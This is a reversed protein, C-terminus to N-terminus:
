AEQATELDSCGRMAMIDDANIYLGIIEWAQTVTSKGSGNPGMFVLIKPAEILIMFGGATLTNLSLANKNTM